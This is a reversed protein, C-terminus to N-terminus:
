PACIGVGRECIGLGREGTRLVRRATGSRGGGGGRCVTSLSTLPLGLRACRPPCVKRGDPHAGRSGGGRVPRHVFQQQRSVARSHKAHSCRSQCYSRAPQAPDDFADVRDALLQAVDPVVHGAPCPSPFVTRGRGGRDRTRPPTSHAQNRLLSPSPPPHRGAALSADWYKASGPDSILAAVPLNSTRGGSSRAPSGHPGPTGSSM